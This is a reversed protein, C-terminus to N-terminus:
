KDNRNMKLLVALVILAVGFMMIINVFYVADGDNLWTKDAIYEALGYRHAAWGGVLLAVGLALITRKRFVALGGTYRVSRPAAVGM